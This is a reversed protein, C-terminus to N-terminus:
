KKVNELNSLIVKKIEDTLTYKKQVADFNGDREFAKGAMNYM